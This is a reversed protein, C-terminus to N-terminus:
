RKNFVLQLGQKQYLKFNHDCSIVPIKDSISQAIIAHDNLDKHNQVLNLELYKKLHYTNYFVIEIGAKRIGNLVDQSSKCNVLEIKGSKHLFILENIAISSTYLINSFDYLINIVKAEIDNSSGSLM